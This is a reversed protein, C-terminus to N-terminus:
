LNVQWHDCLHKWSWRAQVYKRAMDLSRRPGTIAIGQSRCEGKRLTSARPAVTGHLHDGQFWRTWIPILTLPALLSAWKGYAIKRPKWSSEGTHFAFTSSTRCVATKSCSIRCPGHTMRTSMNHHSTTGAITPRSEM